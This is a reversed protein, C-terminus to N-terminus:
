KQVERAFAIAEVACQASVRLVNDYAAAGATEAAAEAARAAEAAAATWAAEAAARDGDRGCRDAAETLGAARLAIPLVRRITLESLKDVFRTANFALGATDLQAFALTRMGASRMSPCSWNADNLQVSFERVAQHVCSPSDRLEGETALAIAAEVCVQGNSEGLGSCLGRDLYDNLKKIVEPNM